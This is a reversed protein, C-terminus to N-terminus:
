GARDILTSTLHGPKLTLSTPGGVRYHEHNPHPSLPTRFRLNPAPCAACLPCRGRVHAASSRRVLAAAARRPRGRDTGSDAPTRPSYHVARPTQSPVLDGLRIRTRLRISDM